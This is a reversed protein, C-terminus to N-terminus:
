QDLVIRLKTLPAPDSRIADIRGGPQRSLDASWGSHVSNQGNLWDFLASVPIAAGTTQEMLEDVSAFRRTTDGSELLAENPSWRMVGLISGIPNTLTLQGRGAKGRLEFGAFFAQPPETEVQLSIRGAWLENQVSNLPPVNTWSACGAISIIATTFAALLATRLRVLTTQLAAPSVGSCKASSQAPSFVVGM